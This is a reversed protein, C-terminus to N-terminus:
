IPEKAPAPEAIESAAPAVPVPPEPAPAVNAAPVTEVEIQPSAAVAPQAILPAAFADLAHWAASLSPPGYGLYVALAYGLGLNLVGIIILYYLM